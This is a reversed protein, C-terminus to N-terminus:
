RRMLQKGNYTNKTNGHSFLRFSQKNLHMYHKWALKNALEVPPCM